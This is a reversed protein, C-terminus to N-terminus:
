PLAIVLLKLMWRKKEKFSSSVLSAGVKFQDIYGNMSSIEGFPLIAKM